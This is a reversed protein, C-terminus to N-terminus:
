WGRVCEPHYKKGDSNITTTAGLALNCKPCNRSGGNLENQIEDYARSMEDADWGDDSAEPATADDQRDAASGVKMETEARQRYFDRIGSSARFYGLAQTLSDVQDDHAANPFATVEDLWDSLWQTAEPLFVRGSEVLGSVAHARSLKDRDVKVARLPIATDRQLEQILSQGSAKDEILVIEPKWKAELAIAQRKLDGYPVRQRWLDLLYYGNDAEGWTSCVSYDNEEGEKFATDWSQIISKMRPPERFTKFWARSFVAGAATVAWDGNLLQARTVPDLEQLSTRYEIQDLYPNDTLKAPVFIRGEIRGRTLFRNKVWEHGPGGPNSASRVRLPVAAGKLRRLRSFLFLYQTETFQTLEDFGIFQYEASKYNFKDKETELYGFEVKAGSPFHWTHTAGGWRADSGRLWEEARSILAGAKTLDAYTNRLLLAAYGPVDVYQLAAMLLADSKGGGAAGGYMAERCDLLLFVAQPPTPHHPAYKSLKPTTLTELRELRMREIADLSM